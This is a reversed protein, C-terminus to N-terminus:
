CCWVSCTITVSPNFVHNPTCLGFEKKEQPNETLLNRKKHVLAYKVQYEPTVSVVAPVYFYALALKM